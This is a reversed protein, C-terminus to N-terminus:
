WCESLIYIIFCCFKQRREFQTLLCINKCCSSFRMFSREKYTSQYQESDRPIRLHFQLDSDNHIYVTRGYTSESCESACSGETIRGCSMPCRFKHSKNKDCGWSCMWFAMWPRGDRISTSWPTSTGTNLCVGPPSTTTPPIYASTPSHQIWIHWICSCMKASKDLPFHFFIM